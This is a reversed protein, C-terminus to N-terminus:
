DCDIIEWEFGCESCKYLGDGIEFSIANCKLCRIVCEDMTRGEGGLGGVIFDLMSDVNANFNHEAPDFIYDMDVSGGIERWVVNCVPCIYYTIEVREGCHNCPIFENTFLLVDDNGCKICSM